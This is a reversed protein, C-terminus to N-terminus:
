VCGVTSFNLCRIYAIALVLPLAHTLGHYVLCLMSRWQICSKSKTPQVEPARALILGNSLRCIRTAYSGTFCSQHHTVNVCDATLTGEQPRLFCQKRGENAHCSKTSLTM